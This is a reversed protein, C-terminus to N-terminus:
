KKNISLVKLMMQLIENEFSPIFFVNRKKKKKKKLLYQDKFEKQLAKNPM